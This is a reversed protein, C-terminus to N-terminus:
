GPGASNKKWGSSCGCWPLKSLIPRRARSPCIGPWGSALARMPFSSSSLEPLYRRRGFLTQVYGTEKAQQVVREMYDRVGSYLELYGNIYADAEKRSVGIDQSLSYAGIGYVIGFNVAKARSRLVSNVMDEPLHFVKAATARHIDRNERLSRDYPIRPWTPWCGCNLRPITPMWWCWGPRATFFRRMEAGTGYAGSYEAFNPETSSIRGTRTETQNFRSHIRGDPGIVKLLGDCYTSKLKAYTRYQLVNEVATSEYRLKELM